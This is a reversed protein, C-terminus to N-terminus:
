STSEELPPLMNIIKVTDISVRVIRKLLDFIYRPDGSWTNPDNTIASDQETTIQYREMIWEIASKGNVVYEYAQDPIELLTVFSNCIITSKDPKGGKKGFIMKTIRYREEPLLKSGSVIERLPYPDASEYKSSVCQPISHKEIESICICREPVYNAVLGYRGIAVNDIKDGEIFKRLFSV